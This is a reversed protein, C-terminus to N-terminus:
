QCTLHMLLPILLVNSVHLSTKTMALNSGKRLRIRTSGAEDRREEEGRRKVNESRVVHISPTSSLSSSSLDPVPLPDTSRLSYIGLLLLYKDVDRGRNEKM